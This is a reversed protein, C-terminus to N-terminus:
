AAGAPRRGRSRALGGESWRTAAGPGTSRRGAEYRGPVEAGTPRHWRLSRSAEGQRDARAGRYVGSSGTHAYENSDGERNRALGPKRDEDASVGPSAGRFDTTGAFAPIRNLRFRRIGAKEGIEGPHPSHRGSPSWEGSSPVDDPAAIFNPATDSLRRHHIQRRARLRGRPPGDGRRLRGGFRDRLISRSRPRESPVLQTDPAQDSRSSVHRFSREKGAARRM